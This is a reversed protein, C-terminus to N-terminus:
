KKRKQHGKFKRRKPIFVPSNNKPTYYNPMEPLMEIPHVITSEKKPEEEYKESPKIKISHMKQKM